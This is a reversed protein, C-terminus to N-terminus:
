EVLQNTLHSIKPGKYKLSSNNQHHFNNFLFWKTGITYLIAVFYVTDHHRFYRKKPLMRSHVKALIALKQEFILYINNICKKNLYSRYTKSNATCASNKKEKRFKFFVIATDVIEVTLWVINEFFSFLNIKQGHFNLFFTGWFSSM